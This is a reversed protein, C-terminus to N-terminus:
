QDAARGLDQNAHEFAHDRDPGQRAGAAAPRIFGFVLGQGILQQSIGLFAGLMDHEDVQAAVVDAAHGIILGHLEGIHHLDFSVRMHHM